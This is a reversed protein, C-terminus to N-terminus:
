EGQKKTLKESIGLEPGLIKGYEDILWSQYLENIKDKQTNEFMPKLLQTAFQSEFDRASSNNNRTNSVPLVSSVNM